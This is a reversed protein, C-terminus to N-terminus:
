GKRSKWKEDSGAIAGTYGSHCQTDIFLAKYLASKRTFSAKCGGKQAM